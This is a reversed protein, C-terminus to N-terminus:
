DDLTGCWLQTEYLIDVEGNTQHREFLRELAHSFAPYVDSDPAPTYSSSRVRGFFGDRDLQQRYSFRDLTVREHGFFQELTPRDIRRHDVKAYDTGYERLFREYARLFPSTTTQRRQWIIAVWAPHRLIRALEIRTTAPDFWHFAQAATVVDVHADPLGTDEARGPLAEFVEHEGLDRAAVARMADNPEVAIVRYGRELLRRSFIGTGAGVDAVTSGARLGCRTALAHFLEEPYDPRYRAYDDVRNSFRDTPDPRTM